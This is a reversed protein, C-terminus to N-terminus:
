FGSHFTSVSLVLVGVSVLIIVFVFTARKLWIQRKPTIDPTSNWLRSPRVRRLKKSIALLHIAEFLRQMRSGQSGSDTLPTTPSQAELHDYTAGMEADQSYHSPAM